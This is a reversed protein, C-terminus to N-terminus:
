GCVFNENKRDSYNKKIILIFIFGEKQFFKIIIFFM